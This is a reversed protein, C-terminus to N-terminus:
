AAALTEPPVAAGPFYRAFLREYAGSGVIRALAEQAAELLATADRRAALVQHDGVDFSATVALPPRHEILAWSEAEGAIVATLDGAALRDFAAAATGFRRLRVGNPLHRSAWREGASGRVVGVVEGASLDVPGTILPTRSPDVSLAQHLSLVVGSGRLARARRVQRSSVLALDVRGERVARVTRRCPAHRWVLELGLRAAVSRALDVDFGTWRGGRRYVLPRGMVCSAVVLRGPRGLRLSAGLPLSVPLWRGGEDRYLHVSASTGALEGDARFAYFNGLGRFEPAARLSELVETRTRAGAGIANLLRRAADYAEVAYAGPPLGFDSQYDQIFRQAPLDTATSLDACSCAVVTGLGARGAVSLYTEDKLGEGGVFAVRRLGAQVMRGRLLAGASSFGGWVVVGCGARELAAIEPSAADATASVKRRLVVRSRLARKVAGLLGASEETGDGLLCVGRSAARLGDVYAALARGQETQNAVARRWTTWGNAALRPGLASLAITPVGAADLIRGVTLQGTLFPAGIAAVFAPDDAIQRAVGAATQPNGETDLGVLEVPVPLDGSLSAEDIALKAGQFAPATREPAGDPSLDEIFAIRLEAPSASGSSSASPSSPGPVAPAEGTCASAAIAIV